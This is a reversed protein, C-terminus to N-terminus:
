MIRMTRSGNGNERAGIPWSGAIPPYVSVGTKKATIFGSWLFGGSTPGIARPCSAFVAPVQLNVSADLNAAEGARAAPTVALLLLLALCTRM